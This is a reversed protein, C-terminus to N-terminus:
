KEICKGAQEGLYWMGAQRVIVVRPGANTRCRSVGDEDISDGHAEMLTCSPPCRFMKAASLPSLRIAAPTDCNKCILNQLHPGLRHSTLSSKLLEELKLAQSWHRELQVRNIKSLNCRYTSAMLPLSNIPGVSASANNAFRWAFAVFVIM